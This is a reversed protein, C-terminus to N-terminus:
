VTLEGYTGEWTCGNSAYTCYVELQDITAQLAVDVVLKSETIKKECLPCVPPTQRLCNDFSLSEVDM